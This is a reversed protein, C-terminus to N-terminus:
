NLSDRNINVRRPGVINQSARRDWLTTQTRTRNEVPQMAKFFRFFNM